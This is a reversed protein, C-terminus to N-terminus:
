LNVGNGLVDVMGVPLLSPTPALSVCMQLCMTGQRATPTLLMIIKRLLARCATCRVALQGFCRDPCRQTQQVQGRGQLHTVGGQVLRCPLLAATWGAVGAM